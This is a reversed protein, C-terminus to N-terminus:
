AVLLGARGLAVLADGVAAGDLGLEEVLQDVSRSGDALELLARETPDGLAHNSPMLTSLVPRGAACQARALPSATPRPGPQHALTAAGDLRVVQVLQLELLARGLQARVEGATEGPAGCRRLARELLEDFRLASPHHDCLEELAATLLPDSTEVSGGGATVFARGDRRSASSIWLREVVGPDIRRSIQIGNNVLLTQRFMRNRFFDLYQERVVVDAPLGAM